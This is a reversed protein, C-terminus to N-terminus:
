RLQSARIQLKGMLLQQIKGRLRTHFSGQPPRQPISNIEPRPVSLFSFSLLIFSTFMTLPTRTIPSLKRGSPYEKVSAYDTAINVAPLRLSM